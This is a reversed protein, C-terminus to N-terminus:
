EDDDDIIVDEFVSRDFDYGWEEDNSEGNEKTRIM